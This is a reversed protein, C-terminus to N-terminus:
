QLNKFNKCLSSFFYNVSFYFM